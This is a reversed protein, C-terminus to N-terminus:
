ASATTSRIADIVQTALTPMCVDADTCLNVCPGVGLPGLASQREFMSLLEARSWRGDLHGEHRRRSAYRDVATQPSCRCHLEVCAVDMEALWGTPTGSALPSGPHRWWSVLVAGRSRRARRRFERDAIRSLRGRWVADGTGLRDFLAELLDDKDLRELHLMPAIVAALTSKGSAPLGSVVLCTPRHSQLEQSV